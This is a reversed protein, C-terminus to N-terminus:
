AAFPTHGLRRELADIVEGMMISEDAANMSRAGRVDEPARESRVVQAIPLM